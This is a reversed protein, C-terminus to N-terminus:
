RREMGTTDRSMCTRDATAVDITTATTAIARGAHPSESVLVVVAGVVDDDVVAAGVPVVVAGVVVTM